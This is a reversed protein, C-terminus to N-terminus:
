EVYDFVFWMLLRKIAVFNQIIELPHYQNLPAIEFISNFLVNKTQDYPWPYYFLSKIWKM